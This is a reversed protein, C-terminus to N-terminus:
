SRDPLQSGSSCVGSLSMAHFSAHLSTGMVQSRRPAPGCEAFSMEMGGEPSLGLNDCRAYWARHVLFAVGRLVLAAGGLHALQGAVGFRAQLALGRFRSEARRRANSGGRRRRQFKPGVDM